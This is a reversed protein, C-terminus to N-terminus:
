IYNKMPDEFHKKKKLYEQYEEETVEYDGRLSNYTRKKDTKNEEKPKLKEKDMQEPKQSAMKAMEKDLEERAKKGAEGICYSNKVFQHCCAYGWKGDEWFSGWVSTHNNIYVDEEYKSKPIAKEPGRVVSGDPNYEVYTESQGYILEKPAQLYKEGGYKKLISDRIKQNSAQKETKHQKYSLETQSPAAQLHVSQQGTEFSTFAFTQMELFNRTESSRVFNNQGTLDSGPLPNERMSRSKPDYYASNVDLNHLYKATDERIRLNRITTRTKPDKKVGVPQESDQNIYDDKEDSSEFEDLDSDSEEALKEKSNESTKDKSHPYRHHSPDPETMFNDLHKRQKRREEDLKAYREMLKMHSAPDYGNWRDRKGDYDLNLDQIVEDPMIDKGTYKAGLKRPRECCEKAKHTMAGCNTCAGKRFKSTAPAAKKGRQYWEQDYHPKEHFARQHKLSPKDSELYWPARAIYQPIHPNIEKGDEDVQAPITGAKRAEELQKQQRHEERSLRGGSAM